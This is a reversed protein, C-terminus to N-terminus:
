ASYLPVSMVLLVPTCWPQWCVCPCVLDYLTLSYLRQISASVNGFISAYMLATLLTMCPWLTCASYSPVSMVSFIPTCWLQWCPWVLDYLTMCPWLTCASYSPVSMISFVPTCWLQWCPWVLDYLTMCPWLTCASYSPVSMVSFVPTFWLQWCPWVLDYLTLAYLRQIIASVNGFLSAYM